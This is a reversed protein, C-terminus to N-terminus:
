FVLRWAVILILIAILTGALGRPIPILALFINALLIFAILGLILELIGM